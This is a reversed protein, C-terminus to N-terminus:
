VPGIRNPGFYAIKVGVRYPASSAVTLGGVFRFHRMGM